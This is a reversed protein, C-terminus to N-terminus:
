FDARIALQVVRPDAAALIQGFAPSSMVAVPASLNVRNLANFAEVRLEVARKSTASRFRRALSADVTVAGPATLRNRGANGFRGLTPLAYAATNFYRQIREARPRDNPLEPEGVLDPRQPALTRSTGVLARDRGSTVTFPQGSVASVITAVRWARLVRPIEWLGNVRLVHRQDFDSLAWEGRHPDNPNQVSAADTSGASRDDMSKSLTYALQVTYSRTFRKMANVQLASYKSSGDSFAQNIGAFYQPYYPRREQENAVTAGPAFVPTNIDRSGALNRGISGFYGAQVIIDAGFQRQVNANFQQLYGTRFAPDIAFVQTPYAYLAPTSPSETYPFPSRRGAYPDRLSPPLAISITQVFPPAENLNATTISGLPTYFLGYGARVSTEGDGSVDWAVGARPALNNRDTAMITDRVGPDGPYVLGPPANAFRTSQQGPMVDAIRNGDERWPRVLEYRAGLNLTVRRLRLDDQVFAAFTQARERNDLVSSQVFSVPRGLLFDAVSNGTLSGDFVFVGSTQYQTRLRQMQLLGSGGARVTQRGHLWSLKANAEVLDSREFWPQNPTMTFAGTVTVTPALPVAGDQAFTGGLQPPTLNQSAAPGETTIRTFSLHADTVLEPRFVHTNTATASQVVNGRESSLLNINAGGAIGSTANRYIRLATTDAAVLKHDIKIAWQDGVNPRPNITTSQLGNNPLPVYLDLIRLAMPDLRGAPIGNDPFPAGTAPDIIRGSSLSFDGSRQAETPPTFQLLADQRIRIGEYSGFAFTRNKMIPGGLRVGFQHQNLAPKSSLAFYNTANLADDRFYEWGGGRLQNTGSRTVAILTAGAARGYEADYTSTLVQFEELSDPSPLNQATNRLATAFQAGDLMVNNQNTRAGGASITPGQRQDTVVPPLNSAGIGPVLTALALVGRGNMPLDELRQHDIVAGVSSSRTDVLLAAGSVTVSEEVGGIELRVDVRAHQGVQLTIGEKTFPKFGALLVRLRYAGSPLALVGYAGDRDTQVTRSAATDVSEITVDAGPLVGGSADTIIGIVTGTTEQGLAHGHLALVVVITTAGAYRIM